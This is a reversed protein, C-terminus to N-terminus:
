GLDKPRQRTEDAILGLQGVTRDDARYQMAGTANSQRVYEAIEDHYKGYRAAIRRKNELDHSTRESPTATSVPGVPSSNM